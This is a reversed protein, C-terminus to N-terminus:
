KCQVGQGPLAGCPHGGGGGTAGGLRGRRQQAPAASRHVCFLLLPCAQPPPPHRCTGEDVVAPDAAHDVAWQVAETYGGRFAPKVYPVGYAELVRVMDDYNLFGVTGSEPGEEGDSGSGGGGGEAGAEGGGAGAGAGAGAAATGADEAGASESAGSDAPAPPTPVTTPLVPPGSAGEVRVDFAIFRLTPSYYIGAQVPKRQEASGHDVEPHPYRGGYLEGFVQM